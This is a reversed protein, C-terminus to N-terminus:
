DGRQPFYQAAVDISFLNWAVGQPSAILPIQVFGSGPPGGYSRVWCAALGQEDRALVSTVSEPDAPWASLWSGALGWQQGDPTVFATMPDFTGREYSVGLLARARERDLDTIQVQKLPKGGLLLPPSGIWVVKGGSDLYRRLVSQAAGKGLQAPLADMAFVVVSERRDGIRANLYGGISHADLATYGRASLFDYVDKAEAVTSYAALQPDYFVAKDLSQRAATNLAYIGGDDAGFFIRNGSVSASSFIRRGSTAFSWLQRGSIEDLAYLKGDWAGTYVVGNAVSPSAFVNIGTNFQWAVRGSAADLAQVFRGDSNGSFVLNRDVAPASMYWYVSATKRWRLAGSRADVAYLSGDKSGFFVKGNRVAPSSQISRRDYGYDASNLHAGETAYRWRLKGTNADFAYLYGDFSGVYAAGNAIAPASRIRGGTRARWIGKGTRADLVYLYGDGSGIYV